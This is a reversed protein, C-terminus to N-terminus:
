EAEGLEGVPPMIPFGAYDSERAACGIVGEVGAWGRAM